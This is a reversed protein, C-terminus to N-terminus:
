AWALPLLCKRIFAGSRSAIYMFEKCKVVRGYVGVAYFVSKLIACLPHIPLMREEGGANGTLVFRDFGLNQPLARCSAIAM